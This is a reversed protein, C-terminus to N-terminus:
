PKPQFTFIGITNTSYRPLTLNFQLIKNYKQAAFITELFWSLYGKLPYSSVQFSHIFHFYPNDPNERKQKQECRIMAPPPLYFLTRRYAINTNRNMM